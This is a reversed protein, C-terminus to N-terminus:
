EENSEHVEEKMYWTCGNINCNKYDLKWNLPMNVIFIAIPSSSLPFQILINRWLFHTVHLSVFTKKLPNAIQIEKTPLSIFVNRNISGIVLSPSPVFRHSDLTSKIFLWNQNFNETLFEGLRLTSVYSEKTDLQTRSGVLLYVVVFFSHVVVDWEWPHFEDIVKVQCGVKWALCEMGTVLFRFFVMWDDQRKHCDHCQRIYFDTGLILKIIMVKSFFFRYIKIKMGFNKGSKGLIRTTENIM